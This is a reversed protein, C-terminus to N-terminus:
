PKLSHVRERVTLDWLPLDSDKNLRFHLITLLKFKNVKYNKKIKRIVFEKLNDVKEHSLVFEMNVHDVDILVPRDDVVEEATQEVANEIKEEDQIKINEEM